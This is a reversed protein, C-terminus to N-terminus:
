WKRRKVLPREILRQSIMERKMESDQPTFQFFNRIRHPWKRLFHQSQLIGDQFAIAGNVLRRHRGQADAAMSIQMQTVKQVGSFIKVDDIKLALWAPGQALTSDFPARQPIERPHNAREM